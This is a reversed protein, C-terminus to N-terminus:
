VVEVVVDRERSQAFRKLGSPKRINKSVPKLVGKMPAFDELAANKARSMRILDMLDGLLHASSYAVAPLALDRLM